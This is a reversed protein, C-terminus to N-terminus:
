IERDREVLSGMVWRLWVPTTSCSCRRRTTIIGATAAENKRYSHKREEDQLKWKRLFATQLQIFQISELQERHNAVGTWLRSNCLEQHTLIATAVVPWNQASRPWLFMAEWDHARARNMNFLTNVLSSWLRCAQLTIKNLFFPWWLGINTDGCPSLKRWVGVWTNGESHKCRLSQSKVYRTVHFVPTATVGADSLLQVAEKTIFLTTIAQCKSILPICDHSTCCSV